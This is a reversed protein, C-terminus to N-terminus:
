NQRKLFDPIQIKETNVKPIQRKEEGAAFGSAPNGANQSNIPKVGSFGQQSAGSSGLSGFGSPASSPINFRTGGFNGTGGPVGFGGTAGMGGFGGFSGGQGFGGVTSRGITAFRNPVKNTQVPQQEEKVPESEEKQEKIGTAIVTIRMYDAESSDYAAGLVLNIDQGTISTIYDLAEGADTLSVDGYISVIADTAGKITTELLPSEVALKVSAQAKGEGKAEGIGIHAIGKGKMVTRVDAFDLNILADKRIIDTIGSVAQQLIEDAKKLADPLSTNKEVIQFLKDNPIVILTDVSEKLREIGETANKMRTRGELTFPKTVIGITLIGMDKAIKSIVPAAGTGTGGGMGCTVFVMDAGSVLNAIEDQSEEAAKQGMAPDAGAGLGDTAREGIQLMQATNCQEMVRNLAQKDTNVATLEVGEVNAEYMRIVANNGAGGVGMVVLRANDNSKNDKIELVLEGWIMHLYEQM